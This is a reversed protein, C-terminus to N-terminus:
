VRDFRIPQFGDLAATVDSHGPALAAFRFAGAPDTVIAIRSGVALNTAQVTAGPLLGGEQDRVTREIIGTQEQAAAPAAISVLFAIGAVIRAASGTYM